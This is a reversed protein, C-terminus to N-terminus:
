HAEFTGGSGRNAGSDDRTEAVEVRGSADFSFRLSCQGGQEETRSTGLVPEQPLKDNLGWKPPLFMRVSEVAPTFRAKIRERASALEPVAERCYKDVECFLGQCDIAHLRRGWLGNFPLALRTFEEEQHDVMWLIVDAPTYKGCDKFVKKIGRIAGPGAKTFDNESFNILSSYNLDTAIQYSMFDGMLPYGHLLTYIDSLSRAALLRAGLTDGVFM